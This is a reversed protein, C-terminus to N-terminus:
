GLFVAENLSMNKDGKKPPPGKKNSDKNNHDRNNKYKNAENKM